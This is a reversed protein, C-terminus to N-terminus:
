LALDRERRVEGRAARPQSLPNRPCLKFSSRSTLSSLLELGLYLILAWLTCCSFCQMLLRGVVLLSLGVAVFVWCLSCELMVKM